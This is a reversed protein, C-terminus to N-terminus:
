AVQHPWVMKLFDSDIGNKRRRIRFHLIIWEKFLLVTLIPALASLVCIVVTLWLLRPALVVYLGTAFALTTAMYSLWMLKKTISRYKILFQLDMGRAIVCIFAVAFSSGMALTDSILFAQFAYAHKRAMNALGEDSGDNGNYGGPLTFAATFTITAILIAVLSTNNTYTESLSKVDKRTDDTVQKKIVEHLNRIDNKARPDADFMLDSIRNWNLTKVSERCEYLRWVAACAGNNLATLDMKFSSNDRHRLLASVMKLNCNLVAFHLATNGDQDRMNIIGRLRENDCKEMGQSASQLDSYIATRQLPDLWLRSLLTSCLRQDRKLGRESAFYKQGFWM